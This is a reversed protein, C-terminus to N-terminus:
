ELEDLAADAKQGAEKILKQHESFRWLVKGNLDMLVKVYVGKYVPIMGFKRLLKREWQYFKETHGHEGCAFHAFEHLVYALKYCEGNLVAWEPVSITRSHKRAWGRRGRTLYFHIKEQGYEACLEDVLKQSM